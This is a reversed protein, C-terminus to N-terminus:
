NLGYKLWSWIWLIKCKSYTADIEDFINKIQTRHRVTTLYTALINLMTSAQAFAYLTSGFDYQVKQVAFLLSTTSFLAVSITILIGFIINRIEVFRSTGIPVACLGIMILVREQLTSM